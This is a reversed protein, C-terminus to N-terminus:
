QAAILTIRTQRVSGVITPRAEVLPKLYALKPHLAESPKGIESLPGGEEVRGKPTRNQALPEPALGKITGSQCSEEVYFLEVEARYKYM